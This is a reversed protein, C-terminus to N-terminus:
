SGSIAEKKTFLNHWNRWIGVSIGQYCIMLNSLDRLPVM